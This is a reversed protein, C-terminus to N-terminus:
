EVQLRQFGLQTPRLLDQPLRPICRGVGVVAVVVLLLLLWLLLPLFRGLLGDM